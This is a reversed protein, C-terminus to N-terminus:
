PKRQSKKSSYDHILQDISWRVFESFNKWPAQGNELILKAQKYKKGVVWVSVCRDAVKFKPDLKPRGSHPVKGERRNPKKTM